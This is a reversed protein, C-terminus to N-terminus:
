LPVPYDESGRRRVCNHKGRDQPVFKNSHAIMEVQGTAEGSSM